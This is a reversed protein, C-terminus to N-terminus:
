IQYIEEEISKVAEPLLDQLDLEIERCLAVWIDSEAEDYEKWKTHWRKEILEEVSKSQKLHKELEVRVLNPIVCFSESSDKYTWFIGEM